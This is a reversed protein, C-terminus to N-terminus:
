AEYPEEEIGFDLANMYEEVTIADDTNPLTVITKDFNKFEITLNLEEISSFDFDMEEDKLNDMYEKINIVIKFSDYTKTNIYYDFEFDNDLTIKDESEKTFKDVLEQNVILEYHKVDGDKDIYKLNESSLYDELLFEENYDENIEELSEEYSIMKEETEIGFLTDLLQSSFYVGFKGLDDIKAYATQKSILPNDGLELSLLTKSDKEEAKLSIPVDLSVTTGESKFSGKLTMVAELSKATKLKESLENLVDMPTQSIFCGTMCLVLIALLFKKM